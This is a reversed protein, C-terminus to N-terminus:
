RDLRADYICIRNRGKSKADYLARDAKRLLEGADQDEHVPFTALGASVTVRDVCDLKTERVSEVLRGAIVNAGELGTHPLLLLFEEGGYRGLIDETRIGQKLVQTVKRLVEDGAIHGWRDNIRKFHDVDIMVVSLPYNHRKSRRWEMKLQNLVFPRLYLKTLDDISAMEYLRANEIAMSAHGGLIGLLELQRASYSGPDTKSDAYIVGFARYEFGMTKILPVCLIRKLQLRESSDSIHESPDFSYHIKRNKLVEEVITHSFSLETPDFNVREKTRAVPYAYSNQTKLLIYGREMRTIRLIADVVTLLLSKLDSIEYLGKAFRLQLKLDNPRISLEKLSVQANKLDFRDAESPENRIKSMLEM